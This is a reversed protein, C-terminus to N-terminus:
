TLISYSFKSIQDLESSTIQKARAMIYEYLEMVIKNKDIKVKLATMKKILTHILSRDSSLLRNYEDTSAISHKDSTDNNMYADYAVSLRRQNVDLNVFGRNGKGLFITQSSHMSRQFPMVPRANNLADEDNDKESDKESDNSHLNMSMKVNRKESLKREVELERAPNFHSKKYPNGPSKFVGASM